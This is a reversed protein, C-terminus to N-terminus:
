DPWLRQLAHIHDCEVIYQALVKDDNFARAFRKIEVLMVLLPNFIKARETNESGTAFLPTGCEHHMEILLPEFCVSASAAKKSSEQVQKRTGDCAEYISGVFLKAPCFERGTNISSTRHLPSPFDSEM